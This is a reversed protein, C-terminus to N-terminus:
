IKPAHATIQLFVVNVILTEATITGIGIEERGPALGRRGSCLIPMKTRKKGEPGGNEPM